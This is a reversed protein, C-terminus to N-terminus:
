HYRRTRREDHYQESGSFFSSRGSRQRRGVRGTFSQNEHREGILMQEVIEAPTGKNRM